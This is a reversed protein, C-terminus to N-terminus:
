RTISLVLSMWGNSLGNHCEFSFIDWLIRCILHTMNAIATGTTTISLMMFQCSLITLFWNSRFFNLSSGVFIYPKNCGYCIYLFFSERTAAYLLFCTTWKWKGNNYRFVKCFSSPHSKSYPNHTLVQKKKFFFFLSLFLQSSIFGGVIPLDHSKYVDFFM